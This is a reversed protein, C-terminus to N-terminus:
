PHAKQLFATFVENEQIENFPLPKGRKKKCKIM